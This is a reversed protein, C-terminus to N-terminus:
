LSIQDCFFILKEVIPIEKIIDYYVTTLVPLLSCEGYGEPPLHEAHNAHKGQFFSSFLAYIRTQLCNLFTHFSATVSVDM